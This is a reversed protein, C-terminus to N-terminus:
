APTVSTADSRPISPPRSAKTSVTVATIVIAAGILQWRTPPSGIATSILMSAVPVLNIFVSASGAGIRRVGANWLYYAILGGGLALVVLFAGIRPGPIPLGTGAAWSVVLMGVAGVLMIGLINATSSADRPLSKRVFVSYFAWLLSAVLMLADGRLSGGHTGAGLVVVAVGGLSIPLAILQLLTPRDGLVFYAVIVTLLPSLAMILSANVASTTQLALFFFVNYGVVGTFGLLLYAKWHRIAFRERLICLILLALVASIINRWAGAAFPAMERLIPKALNFNAGWLVAAMTLALYTRILQM